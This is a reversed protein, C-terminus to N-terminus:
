KSFFQINLILLKRLSKSHSSWVDLVVQSIIEFLEPCDPDDEKDSVKSLLKCSVFSCFLHFFSRSFIMYVIENGCELHTESHAIICSPAYGPSAVKGM